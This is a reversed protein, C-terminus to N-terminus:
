YAPKIFMQTFYLTGNSAKAVGVGIQTINRSLINARHGASNMWATMVEQATRQGYAINEAASSFKLGYNELMRFPSGYVPSTHSFYHNNIMDQSKTRAVRAVQWNYTLAGLGNRSREVNVLKFIETEVTQLPAANPIYIKQGVYILAPNKLGPNAAILESLGIQFKVAIKWLSDGAVVTYTTALADVSNDENFPEEYNVPMITLSPVFANDDLPITVDTDAFATITGTLSLTLAIFITFFIFLKRM